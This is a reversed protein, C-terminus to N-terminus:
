EPSNKSQIKWNFKEFNIYNERLGIGELHSNQQLVILLSRPSNLLQLIICTLKRNGKLDTLFFKSNGRFCEFFKGFSIM